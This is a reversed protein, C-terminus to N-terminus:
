NARDAYRDIITTCHADTCFYRITACSYRDSAGHAYEDTITDAYYNASSYPYKNTTSAHEDATSPYLQTDTNPTTDRDAHQLPHRYLDANLYLDSDMHRNRNARSHPHQDPESNSYQHCDSNHDAHLETYCYEYPDSYVNRQSNAYSDADFHLHTHRKLFTDSDIDSCPSGSDSSATYPDPHAYDSRGAAFQM